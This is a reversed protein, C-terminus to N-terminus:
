GYRGLAMDLGRVMGIRATATGYSAPDDQFMDALATREGGQWPESSIPMLM